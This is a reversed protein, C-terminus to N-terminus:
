KSAFAQASYQGAAIERRSLELRAKVDDALELQDELFDDIWARLKEIEARSLRPIAAEIEQVSRKCLFHKLPRYRAYHSHVVSFRDRQGAAHAARLAAPKRLM